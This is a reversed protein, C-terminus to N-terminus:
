SGLFTFLEGGFAESIWHSKLKSAAVAQAWEQYGSESDRPIAPASLRSSAREYDSLARSFRSSFDILRDGLAPLDLRYARLWRKILLGYYFIVAIAAVMSVGLLPAIWVPVAYFFWTGWTYLFGTVTVVMVSVWGWLGWQELFARLAEFYPIKKFLRFIGHLM